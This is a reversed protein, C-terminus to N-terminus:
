WQPSSRPHSRLNNGTRTALLAFLAPDTKQERRRMEDLAQSAHAIVHFKTSPSKPMRCITAAKPPPLHQGRAAAWLEVPGIVAFM